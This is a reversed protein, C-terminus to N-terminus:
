FQQLTEAGLQKPDIPYWLGYIIPPRLKISGITTATPVAVAAGSVQQTQEATLETVAARAALARQVGEAAAAALTDASLTGAKKIISQTM